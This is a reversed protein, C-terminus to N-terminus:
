ILIASYTVQSAQFFKLTKDILVGKTGYFMNLVNAIIVISSIIIKWHFKWLITSDLDM